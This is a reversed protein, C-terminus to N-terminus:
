RAPGVQTLDVRGAAVDSAIRTLPLQRDRAFTRLLQFARDMDLGSHQAIVGKAQEIAIRSNLATQLQTALRENAETARHQLLTITAVDALAQAIMLDDAPLEGGPLRFLNLAGITQDRLRMPLAHVAGLGLARLRPAFRPWRVVQDDVSVVNVPAGSRYCDPCPGQENQLEFLELLRTEESSAAMVRLRGTPDALMLGAARAELLTTCSAVLEDLLEVVDFGSVLTDALRVFLRGLRVERSEAISM